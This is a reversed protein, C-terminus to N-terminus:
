CSPNAGSDAHAGVPQEDPSSPQFGIYVTGSDPGVAVPTPASAGGTRWGTNTVRVTYSHTSGPFVPLPSDTWATITIDAWYRYCTPGTCPAAAAPGAALVAWVMVLGAPLVGRLWRGRFM